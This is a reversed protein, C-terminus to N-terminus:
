HGAQKREELLKKSREFYEVVRGREAFDRKQHFAIQADIQEILWDVAAADFPRQEGFHVYVPNTHAEADATGYPSRSFARAAIWSPREVTVTTPWEFWGDAVSQPEIEREAHVQGNVVLQVHTVPATPSMVRLRVPLERAGAAAITAGPRQGDVELLLLPGSSVFSRGQAAATLWAYFPSVGDKAATEAYTRCDGLKRCAPYDSAGVAPFCYGASLIQYWGDLGIGRYIGFQLLEVGSITDQVVDAYIEQAYGGHAYFAFGGQQRTEQAVVGYVPWHNPDLTQRDLALDDRWYLNIHGYVGNRYEQGSLLHYCERQAESRRGLGRRQPTVLQSMEGTYRDTENYCMDLGFQIDEAQLLDFILKEDADTVRDFHLHPDGGAYGHVAMDVSRALEVRVNQPAGAAAEVSTTQPRYEYGRWAEIQVRGPPVRVTFEGATYFFHGFYRIPAKAPRNGKGGDPWNDLLSYPAYPNEKPAYYNGDPGVVNVRCLTPRQTDRDLVTVRLVAADAADTRNFEGAEQFGPPTFVYAEQRPDVQAVDFQGIQAWACPPAFLALALITWSVFRKPRM